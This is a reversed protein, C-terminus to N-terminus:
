RDSSNIAATVWFFYYEPWVILMRSRWVRAPSVRTLALSFARWWRLEEETV